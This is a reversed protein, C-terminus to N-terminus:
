DIVYPFIPLLDEPKAPQNTKPNLPPAMPKILDPQINYWKRPIHKEDLLIKIDDM